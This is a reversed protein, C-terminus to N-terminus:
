IHLPAVSEGSWLEGKVVTSRALTTKPRQILEILQEAAVKGIAQTDQHLTTLPPQLVRALHIGDYGAVSIDQPIRLGRQRIENLGGLASFDDPFLICTPRDELDLLEGTIRGTVTGDHYVGERVYEDPIELGLDEAARYFGVLRAETVSSPAGHIYAIKRHGQEHVYGLLESMGKPNDSVVAMRGNFIYDITVLPLASNVLELVQNESFDSCVIAVGDVNRYVCHEYYSMSANNTNIFTIDFGKSEAESKFSELVASFYEHTLGSGAEDRFLVGINNTRNTKLSRAAANPMYGLEDAMKQIRKRTKESVDSAGNLAKSVTATSVGCRLSLEKISVSM